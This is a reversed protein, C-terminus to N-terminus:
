TLPSLELMAGCILAQVDAQEMPMSDADFFMPERFKSIVLETSYRAAAERKAHDRGALTKYWSNGVRGLAFQINFAIEKTDIQRM